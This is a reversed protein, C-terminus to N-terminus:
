RVGLKDLTAAAELLAAALRISEAYSLRADEGVYLRVHHGQVVGPAASTEWGVLQVHEGFSKHHNRSVHDDDEDFDWETRHNEHTLNPRTCWSPCPPAPAHETAPIPSEASAATQATTSSENM